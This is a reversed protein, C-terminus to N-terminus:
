INGTLGKTQIFRVIESEPIESLKADVSLDARTQHRFWTFQRKAYRRSNRAGREIAGGRGLDGARGAM